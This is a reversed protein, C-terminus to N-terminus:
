ALRLLEVDRSLLEIGGSRALWLYSADYFTIKEKTCLAWVKGYDISVLEIRLELAWKLLERALELEIRKRIVATRLGNGVEFYLLTSSILHVLAAQYQSFTENLEKDNEDPLLYALLFSADLVKTSAAM